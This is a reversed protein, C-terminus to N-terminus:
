DTPNVLFAGIRIAYGKSQKQKESSIRLRLTHTGAELDQALICYHARDFELAYIDWASRKKWAGGDLSWEIDGSDHAVAWYIGIAEGEFAFTLETGPRSAEIYQPLRGYFPEERLTWGPADEQTPIVLMANDRTRPYLPRPLTHPPEGPADLATRFTDIIVDLYIQYGKDNPHTTDPMYDEPACDEARIHAALVQGPRATPIGYRRAIREHASTVAPVRGKDYDLENIGKSSLGFYLMDCEPYARRVKRIIGELNRGADDPRECYDNVSFEILLLDPRYPLVDRDCRFVGLDSGTGGIGANYANVECDPWTDRLWQTFRSAWCMEVSSAGAGETISGGLYVVNLKKDVELCQKTHSLM